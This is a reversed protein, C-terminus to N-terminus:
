RSECKRPPWSRRSKERKGAYTEDSRRRCIGLSGFVTGGGRTFALILALVLGPVAALTMIALAPAVTLMAAVGIMPIVDVSPLLFILDSTWPRPKHSL